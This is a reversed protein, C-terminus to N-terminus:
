NNLNIFYDITLRLGTDLSVNPTWNLIKKAKNINPQRKIPDDQPLDNFIIKSNSNTKEKIIDALQKITIV